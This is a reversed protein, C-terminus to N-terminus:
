RPVPGLGSYMSWGIWGGEKDKGLTRTEGGRRERVKITATHGFNLERLGLLSFQADEVDFLPRLDNEENPSGYNFMGFIETKGGASTRARVGRGECKMGLIWAEGGANHVLGTDSDGEPNLHRAWLKQGPRTLEVGAPCDTVFIDGAGTGLVRVGSSEVLMARKASRNELTIPPGGFADLNQFLVAPASQDTVVFRGKGLVRGFGLGMVRRVSGHVRVEGDLTYWNPDGGGIGRLYVVTKRAKAAADIAKQFAETDDKNDGPVAGFDNACLWKEPDTEWKPRPERKVALHLAKEPAEFLRRTPHSSYETM